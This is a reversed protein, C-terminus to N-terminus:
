LEVVKCSDRRVIKVMFSPLHALFRTHMAKICMRTLELGEEETM